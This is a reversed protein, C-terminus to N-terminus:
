RWSFMQGYSRGFFNGTIDASAVLKWCHRVVTLDAMSAYSSVSSQELPVNESSRARNFCNFNEQRTNYVLRPVRVNFVPLAM